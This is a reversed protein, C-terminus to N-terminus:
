PIRPNGILRDYEAEAKGYLGNAAKILGERDLVIIRNRKSRILKEGELKHLATTIGARRYGLMLSIFDHTTNFEDGPVRDHWMVIWRALRELLSGTGSALTTHGLQVMLVHAYKLWLSQLEPVALSALFAERSARLASGASQVILIHAPRDAALALSTGTMGELGILGIEIRKRAGIAEVVSLVASEPFYIDQIVKDPHEIEQALELKMRELSSAFQEHSIRQVLSNSREAENAM